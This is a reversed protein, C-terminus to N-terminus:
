LKEQEIYIPIFDKGGPWFDIGQTVINRLLHEIFKNDKEEPNPAVHTARVCSFLTVM